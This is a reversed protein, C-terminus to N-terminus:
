KKTEKISLSFLRLFFRFSTVCRPVRFTNSFRHHFHFSLFHPMIYMTWHANFVEKLRYIFVLHVMKSFRRVCQFQANVTHVYVSKEFRLSTQICIFMGGTYLLELGFLKMEFFMSLCVLRNQIAITELCKRGSDWGSVLFPKFPIYVKISNMSNEEWEVNECNFNKWFLIESRWFSSLLPYLYYPSHNKFWIHSQSEQISWLSPM